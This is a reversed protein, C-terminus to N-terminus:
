IKKPENPKTPTRGKFIKRVEVEPHAKELRARASKGREPREGIIPTDRFTYQLKHPYFVSLLPICQMEDVFCSGFCLKFAAVGESGTSLWRIDSSVMFFFRRADNSM